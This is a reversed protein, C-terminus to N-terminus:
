DHDDPTRAIIQDLAADMAQENETIRLEIQLAWLPIGAIRETQLKVLDKHTCVVRDISQQERSRNIRKIVTQMTETTFHDHDPLTIRDILEAGLSELTQYFAGPNGLACLAIVRQRSLESADIATSHSDSNILKTPAHISHVIPLGPFQQEMRQHLTNLAADPVADCRSLVVMDARDLSSVPERLMGRPLLFANFFPQSADVVVIDFDRHMRRHQFGDDMVVIQTELEDVAIMAAAHRDPDQVHPVDPLRDCWM